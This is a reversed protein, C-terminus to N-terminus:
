EPNVIFEKGGCDVCTVHNLGLILDLYENKDYVRHCVTCKLLKPAGGITGFTFDRIVNNKFIIM